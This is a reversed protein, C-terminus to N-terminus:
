GGIVFNLEESVNKIILSMKLDSYNSECTISSIETIVNSEIIKDISEISLCIKYKDNEEEVYYEINWNYSELVIFNSDSKSYSIYGTGDANFKITIWGGNSDQANWEINSLMLEHSFKSLTVEINGSSYILNYEGDFELSINVKNSSNSRTLTFQKTNEDYLYSYEGNNSTNNSDSVYVIGNKVDDSNPIFTIDYMIETKSKKIYRNNILSELSPVDKVIIDFIINVSDDKLSTIKFTYTGEKTAVFRYVETLQETTENMKIYDLEFNISEEYGSIFEIKYSQDAYYPNFSGQIYFTENKYVSIKNDNSIIDAFYNSGSKVFYFVSVEKPTAKSVHVKYSKSVKNSSIMLDYDGENSCKLTIKNNSYSFVGTINNTKEEIKLTDFSSIATSPLPNSITLVYADDATMYIDDEIINKKGDILDFSTFYYDEIDFPCELVRDGVEQEITVFWENICKANDEIYYVNNYEFDAYIDKFQEFHINLKTIVGDSIKYEVTQLYLSPVIGDVFKSVSFKNVDNTSLDIFDYNANELALDYVSSLIGYFGSLKDGYINISPGYVENGLLEEDIKRKKGYTDQIGYITGSSNYGYYYNTPTSSLKNVVKVFDGYKDNGFEYSYIKKSNSEEFTLKGSKILSAYNIGNKLDDLINQNANISSESEKSISKSSIESSLEFLSSEISDSLNSSINEEESFSLFGNNSSENYSNGCSCLLILLLTLSITKNKM